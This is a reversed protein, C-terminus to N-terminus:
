AAAGATADATGSDDRHEAVTTAAASPPGGRPRRRRRPRAPDGHRRLPAGPRRRPPRARGAAAGQEAHLRPVPVRRGVLHREVVVVSRGEAALAPALVEASSGGGLVAVDVTLPTQPDQSPADQPM